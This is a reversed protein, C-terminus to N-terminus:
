FAGLLSALEDIRSDLAEEDFVTTTQEYIPELEKAKEPADGRDCDTAITLSCIPTFSNQIEQKTDEIDGPIDDTISIIISEKPSSDAVSRALNLADALPTGLRAETSLLSEKVHETEVSPPKVYRAEERYFDIIAVDIDLAECALAFRAVAQTAVDIKGVTEGYGPAMSGSRDLVIVVFYEKKRGPISQEFVRPDNHGLRHATKANVQVGSSLGYRTQTMQDLRLEKALTDAVGDAAQEIDQWNTTPERDGSPEPMIKLEDLSAKKAGSGGTGRARSDTTEDDSLIDELARLDDELAPEDITTERADQKARRRDAAFDEPSLDESSHAPEEPPEPDATGDPTPSETNSDDRPDGPQPEPLGNNESPTPTEGIDVTETTNLPGAPQQDTPGADGGNPRSNGTQPRSDGGTEPKTNSGDQPGSESEADTTAESDGSDADGSDTDTDADTDPGTDADVDGDANADVDSDSGDGEADDSDDNAFDGFTTQGGATDAGTDAQSEANSSSDSDSDSSDGSSSNAMSSALATSEANSQVTTTEASGSNDGREGDSPEGDGDDSGDGGTNDTSRDPEGETTQGSAAGDGPEGDGESSQSGDGGESEDTPDGDNGPTDDSQQGSDQGTPQQQPKSQSQSQPQPQSASTDQQRTLDEPDVDLDDTDPEDDMSPHSSVSQFEDDYSVPQITLNEPDIESSEDTETDSDDAQGDGDQSEGSNDLQDDLDEVDGHTRGYHIRLGHDSEFSDGCEPCENEDTEANDGDDESEDTEGTDDESRESGKAPQQSVANGTSEDRDGGDTDTDTELGDSQEQPGDPQSEESQDDHQGSGSQPAQQGQQQGQQPPGQQPGQQPSQQPPAHQPPTQQPPTEGEEILPKLIEKWFQIVRKARLISAERDDDFLEDSHDSRLALIDDRLTEIEDHIELFATREDELGFTVRSDDEDLLVDTVGSDYILRDYLAKLIGDGLSYDVPTELDEVTDTHIDRVLTLRAGARDTFDDGTKAEHEIAGDEAINILENLLDHYKEDVEAEVLDNVPGFSTKLIHLTEHLALGFQRAADATLQDSLCISDLPTPHASILVLWEGDTQEILQRAQHRELNTADDALLAEETTPLVAASSVAETVIVDINSAMDSPLLGEVYQRIDETRKASRRVQAAEPPTLEQALRAEQQQTSSM